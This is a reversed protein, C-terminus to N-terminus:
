ISNKYQFLLILILITYLYYKYVLGPGETIPSQRFDTILACSWNYCCFVAFIGVLHLKEVFM